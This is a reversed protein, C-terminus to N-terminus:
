SQFKRLTGVRIIPTCYLMSGIHYFDCSERPILCAECLLGSGARGQFHCDKQMLICPLLLLMLFFNVWLVFALFLLMPYIVLYCYFICLWFLFKWDVLSINGCLHLILSYSYTNHIDVWSEANVPIQIEQWGQLSYSSLSLFHQM